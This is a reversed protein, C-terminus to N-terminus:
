ALTEGTDKQPLPVSIYVRTGSGTGIDPGTEMTGGLYKVREAVSFLGYSKVSDPAIGIGNDIVEIELRGEMNRINISVHDAQAHKVVNFLLERVTKYLLVKMEGKIDAPDGLTNVVISIGQSKGIQESLWRIGADFGVMYLVPSALEYTLSRSFQVTQDILGIVEDIAEGKGCAAAAERLSSVMLKLFVLNQGLTDHLEDAIRKREREEILTSEFTLRQLQGQYNLIDKEKKKRGTIDHVAHVIRVLAGSDDLVPSTSVELWKNLSPEFIEAFEKEKTKILREFPCGEIPTDKGHFLKYCKTGIVEEPAKGIMRCLSLNANVITYDGDHISVGDAMADFSTKWERAATAIAEEKNKRETIDHVLSIVAQRGQLETLRATIEVPIRQGDKAVHSQEFIATKDELLKRGVTGADIDSEPADIDAPTLTLLEDRSYGLYRCAVDNVQFFRGPSGDASIDHVLVADTIAEFLERFQKEENRLDNEIRGRETLEEELLSNQHLIRGESRILFFCSGAVFVTFILAASYYEKKRKEFSILASSRLSTVVVILPYDGLARYSAFRHLGDILSVAEYNGTKNHRLADFLPSANLDQGVESQKRFRRARVIGDWGVLIISRDPGMEPVSYFESFYAPDLGASVIGGFSGDPRNLRRSLFFSWTGTARTIFPKGLYLGMSPNKAQVQFHERIAINIPRNLPVASLLLDGDANAIGLQNLIPDQKAAAVFDRMSPTIMGNKKYELQLFLLANDATKLARRVHEEFARTLGSNVGNLEAIEEAHEETMLQIVSIWAAGTLCLGFLSILLFGKCRRKM